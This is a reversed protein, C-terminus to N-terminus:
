CSQRLLVGLIQFHRMMFASFIGGGVGQAFAHNELPFDWTQGTILRLGIM